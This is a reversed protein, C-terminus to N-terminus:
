FSNMEDTVVSYGQKREFSRVFTKDDGLDLLVKAAAAKAEESAKQGPALRRTYNDIAIKREFVVTRKKTPEGSSQKLGKRSYNWSNPDEYTINDESFAEKAMKLVLKYQKKLEMLTEGALETKVKERFSSTLERELKTDISDYIEKDLGYWVLVGMALVFYMECIWFVSSKTFDVMDIFFETEEQKGVARVFVYHQEENHHESLYIYEWESGDFPKKLHILTGTKKVYCNRRTMIDPELVNEMLFLMTKIFVSANPGEDDKLYLLRILSTGRTLTQNFIENMALIAVSGFTLSVFTNCSSNDLLKGSFYNSYKKDYLDLINQAETESVKMGCISVSLKYFLVSQAVAVLFLDFYSCDTGEVPTCRVVERKEEDFLRVFGNGYWDNLLLNLCCLFGRFNGSSYKTGLVVKRVLALYEVEAVQNTFIDIQRIAEKVDKNIACSIIVNVLDYLLEMQKDGLLLFAIKEVVYNSDLNGMSYVFWKTKIELLKRDIKNQTYPKAVIVDPKKGEVGCVSIGPAVESIGNEDIQKKIKELKEPVALTDLPNQLGLSSTSQRMKRKGLYTPKPKFKM